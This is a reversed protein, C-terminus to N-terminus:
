SYNNVYIERLSSKGRKQPWCLTDKRKHRDTEKPKNLAEHVIYTSLLNQHIFSLM